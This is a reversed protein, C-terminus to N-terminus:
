DQENEGRMVPKDELAAKIIKKGNEGTYKSIQKLIKDPDRTSVLGVTNLLDILGTRINYAKVEKDGLRLWYCQVAGYPVRIGLKDLDIVVPKVVELWDLSPTVLTPKIITLYSLNNM